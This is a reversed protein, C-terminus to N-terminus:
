KLTEIPTKKPLILMMTSRKKVTAGLIKLDLVLEDKKNKRIALVDVLLDGILFQDGVRLNESFQLTKEYVIEV